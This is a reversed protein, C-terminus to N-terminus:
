VGTRSYQNKLMRRHELPEEQLDQNWLFRFPPIELYWLFSLLKWFLVLVESRHSRMMMLRDRDESVIEDSLHPFGVFDNLDNGEDLDRM